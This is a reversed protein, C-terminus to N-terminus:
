RYNYKLQIQNRLEFVLRSLEIRNKNEKNLLIRNIKKNLYFRFYKPVDIFRIKENILLKIIKISCEVYIDNFINIEDKSLVKQFDSYKNYHKLEEESSIINGFGLSFNSKYIKKIFDSSKCSLLFIDHEDFYHNAWTADLFYKIYEFTDDPEYLGSSSGHGLYVILSKPELDGILSKAKLISKEDSKFSYYIPEFEEKFKNLFLTSNDSAHIILVSKYKNM